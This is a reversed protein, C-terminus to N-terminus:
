DLGVTLYIIGTEWDESIEMLIASVLRLCASQNPFIRVVLTRLKVEQSVRKLMNGTRIRRQHVEPFDLETLGEPSAAEMGAAAIQEL